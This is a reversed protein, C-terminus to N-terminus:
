RHARSAAPGGQALASLRRVARGAEKSDKRAKCGASQTHSKGGGQHNGDAARGRKPAGDTVVDQAAEANGLEPAAAVHQARTSELQGRDGQGGMEWGWEKGGERGAVPVHQRMM